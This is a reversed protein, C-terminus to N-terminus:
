RLPATAADLWAATQPDLAPGLTERVRAHYGDLWAREDADLLAPEVLAVDLHEFRADLFSNGSGSGLVILDHHRM